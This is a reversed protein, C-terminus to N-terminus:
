NEIITMNNYYSNLTAGSGSATSNFLKQQGPDLDIWAEPRIKQGTLMYFSATCNSAAPASGADNTNNRSDSPFNNACKVANIEVNNSDKLRWIAEIQNNDIAASSGNLARIRGSELAFTFTATFVGDRKATFEGTAPNFTGGGNSNNYKQTWSTLYCPTRHPMGNYTGPSVGGQEYCVVEQSNKTAIFVSKEIPNIIVDNWEIGNSYQIKKSETNYRIAGEEAEIATQSTNGLGIASETAGRVDLKVKPLNNGIAINGTINEVLFDDTASSITNVTNKLPDIHLIGKPQEVGVGIQANTNISFVFFSSTLFIIMNKM